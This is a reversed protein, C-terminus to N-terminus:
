IYVEWGERRVSLEDEVGGKTVITQRGDRFASLSCGVSGYTSITLRGGGFFITWFVTWDM